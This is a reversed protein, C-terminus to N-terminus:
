DDTCDKTKDHVFLETYAFITYAITASILVSAFANTYAQPTWDFDIWIRFYLLNTLFTLIAFTKAISKRGEMAIVVIFFDVMIAYAYATVHSASLGPATIYFLSASHHVQVAIAIFLALYRFRHSTVLQVMEDFLVQVGKYVNRFLSKSRKRSPTIKNTLRSSSKNNSAFLPKGKSIDLMLHEAKLKTDSSTQKSNIYANLLTLVSDLTYIGEKSSTLGLQEAKLSIRQYRINLAKAIHKLSITKKM